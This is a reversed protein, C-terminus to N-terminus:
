HSDFGLRSDVPYSTGFVHNFNDIAMNAGFYFVGAGETMTVFGAPAM